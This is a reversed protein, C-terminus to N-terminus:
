FWGGKKGYWSFGTKQLEFLSPGKFQGLFM